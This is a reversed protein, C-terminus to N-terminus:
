KVGTLLAFVSSTTGSMEFKSILLDSDLTNLYSVRASTFIGSPVQLGSNFYRLHNNSDINTFGTFRFDILGSENVGTSLNWAGTFSKTYFSGSAEASAGSGSGTIGSIIISPLGSLYLGSNNLIIQILAGGSIVGSAVAGSKQVVGPPASFTISPPEIYGSGASTLSIGTVQYYKGTNGSFYQLSISLHSPATVLDSDQYIHYSLSYDVQKAQGTTAGSFPYLLSFDEPIISLVDTVRNPPYAISDFSKEIEGFNTYLKVTIVYTIYSKVDATPLLSVISSFRRGSELSDFEFLNIPTIVEGSFIEFRRQTDPTELLGTLPQGTVFQDSFNLSYDFPPSSVTLDKLEVNCGTTNIVFAQIKFNQKQGIFCIPSGNFYYDYAEGSINGSLSIFSKEKYSEFYRQENDSIRGRNFLFGFFGSEGSFGFSATGVLNDISLAASYSIQDQELLSRYNVGSFSM